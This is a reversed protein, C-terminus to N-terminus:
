PTLAKPKDDREEGMIVRGKLKRHRDGCVGSGKWTMTEILVGCPQWGIEGEPAPVSATCYEPEETIPELSDYKSPTTM